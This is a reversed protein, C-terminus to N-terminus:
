RKFKGNKQFGSERYSSIEKINSEGQIREEERVRAQLLGREGVLRVLRGRCVGPQLRRAARGDPGEQRGQRAQGRLAGRAGQGEQRRVEQRGEQWGEQGQQRSCLSIPFPPFFYAPTHM